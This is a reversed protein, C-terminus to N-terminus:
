PILERSILLRMVENTGATISPISSFLSTSGCSPLCANIVQVKLTKGGEVVCESRRMCVGEGVCERGGRCM